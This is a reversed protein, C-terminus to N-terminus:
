NVSLETGQDTGLSHVLQTFEQGRHTFDQFQDTSACAPSLLIADGERSHNWCWHFAESLSEGRYTSFSANRDRALLELKRGSAGFFGAGISRKVVTAMLEVYDVPQEVGGLLLWTPRNMSVLAANTAAPTTSKSDNYFRRGAVEAVFEIRYPLGNFASLSNRIAEVAVGLKEAAAAALMANTRNHTGPIRLEPIKDLCWTELLDVSLPVLSRWAHLESDVPGFVALGGPPLNRIL